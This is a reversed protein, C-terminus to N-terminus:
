QRLLMSPVASLGYGAPGLSCRAQFVAVRLAASPCALLFSVYVLLNLM